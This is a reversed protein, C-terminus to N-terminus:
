NLFRWENAPENRLRLLFGILDRVPLRRDYPPSSTVSSSPKRMRSFALLPGVVHDGPQCQPRKERGLAPLCPRVEAAAVRRLLEPLKAINAAIRRAEASIRCRSALDSSALSSPALKMATGGSWRTSARESLVRSPCSCCSSTPFVLDPSMSGVGSNSMDIVICDHALIGAGVKIKAMRYHRRRPSGRREEPMLSRM